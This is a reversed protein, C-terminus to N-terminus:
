RWYNETNKIEVKEIGEVGGLFHIFPISNLQGSSPFGLVVTM